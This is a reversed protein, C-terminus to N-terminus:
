DLYIVGEHYGEKAVQVWNYGEKHCKKVEKNVVSGIDTTM